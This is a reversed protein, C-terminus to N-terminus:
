VDKVHKRTTWQRRFDDHGSVIAIQDADISRDRPQYTSLIPLGPSGVLTELNLKRNLKGSARTLFALDLYWGAVQTRGVTVLPRITGADPTLGQGRVLVSESLTNERTSGM